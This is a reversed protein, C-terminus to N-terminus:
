SDRPSPSTYLLCAADEAGAEAALAHLLLADDDDAAASAPASSAAAADDDDFLVVDAHQLPHPCGACAEAWQRALRFRRGARLTARWRGDRLPEVNTATVLTGVADTSLLGFTADSAMARQMLLRYRPEFFTFPGASTHPFLHCTDCAYEFLMLGHRRTAPRVLARAVAAVLENKDICDRCEAGREALLTRLLAAKQQRLVDLVQPHGQWTPEGLRDMISSITAAPVALLHQLVPDEQTEVPAARAEQHEFEQEAETPWPEDEEGVLVKPTESGERGSWDIQITGFQSASLALTAAVCAVASRSRWM